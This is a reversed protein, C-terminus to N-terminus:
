STGGRVYADIGFAARKGHQIAQVVTAGGNIADGGAFYKGNSTQGTRPDVKPMGRDIELGDIWSLFETRKQQGVALIVTDLPVQFETGEVPVPRPRGSSDAKGLKMYHCTMGTLRGDGDFSRPSTLFQFHIGHRRAETIEHPYAPMQGETRRYFMTVSSAGLAKSEIAVDIATNGGGIVAVSDGIGPPDGTKIRRIFDLSKWVGPLAEGPLGTAIDEGLGVALFIADFSEELQRLQGPTDIGSGFRFEVGLRAILEM